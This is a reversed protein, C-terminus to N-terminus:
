THWFRERKLLHLAASVLNEVNNRLTGHDLKEGLDIMTETPTNTRSLAKFNKKNIEQENSLNETGVLLKAIKCFLIKSIQIKRRWDREDRNLFSVSHHVSHLM